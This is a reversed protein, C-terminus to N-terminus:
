MRNMELLREIFERTNALRPVKNQGGLRGREKLWNYFLGERAVEVIPYALSINKYRKAEYDSNVAKLSTDLIETFHELNDPMKSFEFLWQHGGNRKQDM